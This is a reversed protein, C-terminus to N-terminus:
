TAIKREAALGHRERIVGGEGGSATFTSGSFCTRFLPYRGHASSRLRVKPNSTRPQGLQWPRIFNSATTFIGMLLACGPRPGGGRLPRRSLTTVAREDGLPLRRARRGACYRFRTWKSQSRVRYFGPSWVPMMLEIAGRGGTPYTARVEAYHTAAASVKVEYVIPEAATAAFATFLPRLATRSARCQGLFLPKALSSRM